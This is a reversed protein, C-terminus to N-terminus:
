VLYGWITLAEWVIDVDLRGAPEIDARLRALGAEFEDEPILSYTSIFKNAVREVYYRDIPRPEAVMPQMDVGAFGAKELAARIAEESQFRAKDIEAFSPFYRNMPHREIFNISATVFAAYGHQLVRACERFAEELNGLHHLVYCGFIFEVSGDRLPIDYASGLVWHAPVGKAVAKGLMGWSPELAILACSCAEGFAATNNGTGCGIELVRHACCSEALRVLTELYPGGGGRYNDYTEAIQDYDIKVDPSGRHAPGM